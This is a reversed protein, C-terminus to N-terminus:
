HDLAAIRRVRRRFTPPSVGLLEAGIRTRGPFRTVIEALLLSEARSALDEADPPPLRVLQALAEQVPNWSAPRSLPGRRDGVKRLWRRCTAPSVGLVLAARRIDEGCTEAVVQVIDDALWRGLATDSDIEGLEVAGVQRRLAERLSDWLGAARETAPGAAAEPAPARTRDDVGLEASSQAERAVARRHDGLGLESSGIESAQSFIVAQMLRNQLERVNGPWAYQLLSKEADPALKLVPRQFQVAFSELFYRALPLIDARRERLPPVRLRVVNMRHYLDERFRGARVDSHLDRNTCAIIRANVKLPRTGGVPTLEKEQVIRLLKSQVELPLEGIEDLMVSGGEAQAILGPRSREAGTYAGKENGFLEREILSTAIASCDVVVFPQDRRPSLEHVTRALVEKGTGSDGTILVTADTAAVKRSRELLEEMEQSSFVLKVRDLAQRLQRLEEELRRQEDRQRSRDLETLRFRDLALALQSCLGRLLTQDSAELALAPERGGLLLAGLCESGAVLPIAFSRSPPATGASGVGSGVLAESEPCRAEQPEGESIALAVLDLELSSAELSQMRTQTRSGLIRTVGRILRPGGEERREYIGIRDPLFAKWIHDVIRTALEELGVSGAMSSVTSWLLTMNRYDNRLHGTFVGRLQDPGGGEEGGLHRIWEISRDGGLRKAAGLAQAAHHLLDATRHTEGSGPEFAAIGVSFRLRIQGRRYPEDGVRRLIKEAIKQAPGPPSDVLVAFSAGAYRTMPDTRRVMSRVRTEIERIVEDGAEWGFQENVTAFDDPNLLLLSFAQSLQLAQDLRDALINEFRARGSTGALSSEPPEPFRLMAGGPAENSTVNEENRM